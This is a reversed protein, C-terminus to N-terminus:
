IQRKQSKKISESPHYMWESVRLNSCDFFRARVILHHLKSNILEKQRLKLDDYQLHKALAFTVTISDGKVKFPTFVDCDHFNYLYELETLTM